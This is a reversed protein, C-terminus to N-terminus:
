EMAIAPVTGSRDDADAEEIASTTMTMGQLAVGQQQGSIWYVTDFMDISFSTAPNLAYSVPKSFVVAGTKGNLRTFVPVIQSGLVQQEAILVDGNRFFNPQVSQSPNQDNQLCYEWVRTQLDESYAVLGFQGKCGGQDQIDTCTLVLGLPSVTVPGGYLSGGDIEVSFASCLFSRAPHSIRCLV